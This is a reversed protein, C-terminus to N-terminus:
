ESEITLGHAWQFLEPLNDNKFLLSGMVVGDAGASRLLPVTHQRIGGDALVTIQQTYGHEELLQKMLRVRKPALPSPEVGKIGMATGMMTIIEILGFYPVILDPNVDLGLVLGAALGHYRVRDLAAPVLPGIEAHVSIIDAGSQAFEDVLNLPHDCMLHVHLPKKTLPRIAAVLAPFFLLGPVFHDDSVDIHYLDTFADVRNIEEALRTLDASWLSAEIFLRNRPLSLQNSM